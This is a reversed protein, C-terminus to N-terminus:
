QWSVGHCSPTQNNAPSKITQTTKIARADRTYHKCNVHALVFVRRCHTRITSTTTTTTLRKPTNICNCVFTTCVNSSSSYSCRASCMSFTLPLSCYLKLGPVSATNLLLLLTTNHETHLIETAVNFNHYSVCFYTCCWVYDHLCHKTHM